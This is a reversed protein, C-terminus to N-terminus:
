RRHRRRVSQWLYHVPAHSHVASAVAFINKGYRARSEEIQEEDYGQDSIDFDRYLTDMDVYAYDLVRGHITRDGKM